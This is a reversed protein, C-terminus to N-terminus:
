FSKVLIPDANRKSHFRRKRTLPEPQATTQQIFDEVVAALPSALLM